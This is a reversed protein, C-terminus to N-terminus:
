SEEADMQALEKNIEEAQAMLEDSKTRNVTSMQHAQKLLKEYKDELKERKSKRRFLGMM